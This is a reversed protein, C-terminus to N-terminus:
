LRVYHAVKLNSNELLIYEQVAFQQPNIWPFYVPNEVEIIEPILTVFLEKVEPLQLAERYINAGGILWIYLPSLSDQNSSNIIAQKLTLHTEIENIKNRTVVINRRKPLGKPMNLSEFTKRGMIVTSNATMQRFFKMDEPYKGAWPLTNTDADGIVGNQSVAVILKVNM